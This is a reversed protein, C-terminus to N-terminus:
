GRGRRSPFPAWRRRLRAPPVSKKPMIAGSQPGEAPADALARPKRPAAAGNVIQRALAKVEEGAAAHLHIELGRVLTRRYWADAPPPAAAPRPAAAPPAALEPLVFAALRELEPAALPALHQRITAVSYQRKRQLYRIAALHILCARRRAIQLPAITTWRRVESCPTNWAKLPKARPHEHAAHMESPSRRDRESPSAHARASLFATADFSERFRRRAPAENCVDFILANPVTGKPRARARLEPPFGAPSAGHLADAFRRRM